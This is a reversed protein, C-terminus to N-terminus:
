ALYTVELSPNSGSESKLPSADSATLTASSSAGPGNGSRLRLIDINAFPHVGAQEDWIVLRESVLNEGARRPQPYARMRLPAM